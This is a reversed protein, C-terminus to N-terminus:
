REGAGKPTVWCCGAVVGILYRERLQDFLRKAHQRQKKPERENGASNTIPVLRVILDIAAAEPTLTADQPIDFSGVPRAVPRELVARLVAKLADRQDKNLERNRRAKVTRVPAGTADTAIEAVITEFPGDELEVTAREPRVELTYGSEGNKVHEVLLEATGDPRKTMGGRGDSNAWLSVPLKARETTGWPTHALLVVGAIAGDALLERVGDRAAGTEPDTPKETVSVDYHDVAVAVCQKPFEAKISALLRARHEPVDLKFEGGALVRVNELSLGHREAIGLLRLKTGFPDENAVIVAPFAEVESGDLARGNAALVVLYLALTTKYHGSPSYLLFWGHEQVLGPIVFKPKQLKRFDAPGELKYLGPETEGGAHGNARDHRRERRAAGVFDDLDPDITTV